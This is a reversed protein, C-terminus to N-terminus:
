VIKTDPLMLWEGFRSDWDQPDFRTWGANHFFTLEGFYVRGDVEYFDVRVHPFGESLVSALRKMSEFQKPCKPLVAANEHGQKFPLHNFDPDFFDFKVDVGPNNRETAIFLAKVEGDFCFFKYDRLEGTESDELYPEALIRPVVNKYPWEFGEYYYNNKFSMKIDRLAKNKNLKSKDKCIVLGGSDHSCKLVFQNPLSQWDIDSPKEWIALTPIVYEEGIKEKVYQKVAIKDVLSTLIPLHWFLKLWQLKESYTQPNDLDLPYGMRKFFLKHIYREPKVFRRKILEEKELFRLVIQRLSNKPPIM